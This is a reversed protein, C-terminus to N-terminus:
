KKYFKQHKWFAIAAVVVVALAIYLYIEVAQKEGSAYSHMGSLHFNVGFYTMLISAFAFVSMVNYIWKGRLAPVFRAHIVFAYVMISILAWTEKPDWGWYRGWSENAWQGGLFNGITLMVLGVTLAMENIYTIEQITLDMKQKNKANTFIMLFLAVLGLIMGLTFPGYSAVIVAVHIMLWYSNLVPQLNGIAPDMWNWHAVMLIIATVFATSAVTLESKRGFALGFFMTAWAVYIMSEYADSWPAHGSIYWRILLGGLHMLFLLGIIIHSVKTAIVVWRKKSFIKWIVFIFMLVGAYLYWSFLKKFIDYKNYLIETNIKKDSLMVKAGFKKQYDSIGKLLQDVMKYNKTQTANVCENLYFPLANKVIDLPTNTAHNLELNSVWKNNKDKPLPFVKLIEGSLAQNLLRVKKDAEIFDKQFQNPISEKYAEEIQKEIKYNGQADFFNIMSAYKSEKDIGLLNRISDNGKKLYILPVHVWYQPFQNMSIFVQDSTLGEYSDNKSAKRLLESSFTNIPKMRGGEDQIVLKGFEAAKEEPISYKKIYKLAEESTPMKQVVKTDHTHTANNKQAMGAFSFFLFLMTFVSKKGRVKDLKKKLDAFRTNRDFLIAMLAFYLLFYGIYTIWTGWFDHNVSLHTGQEDPDFGAQFFRFGRYDLVHNMYVSDKVTKNEQTDQIQIKSKFSAYSKETGPYKEAIFDDLKISFPLQHIKSGYLLTFELEGLKFSKPESQKGKQGFLTVLEEKGESTVKLVVADDTNKDKYNEDSELALTGKVPLQPLVFQIGGVNYLSRFQLESLSNAEVVGQKKDAMRMYNGEFPTQITYSDQKATINIAGPTAKNFAFLLNSISKVEGDLLFHEKRSGQSAEVLKLYTKGKSNPKFTQKANLIFEQLEITFPKGDFDDSITLSNKVAKSFLAQKEITKRKMEGKYNGDVFATIYPIDSYVINSSAGERVLLMGEYSIYRTVFAGIIIFIFSLHLLLTAWKEKKYLQYRKINGFFNIVFFVMILEFWWANYVLIRATETNYADEIFTGAAMAAAFVIFLIAMLRTSYLPALIKQLMYNAKKLGICIYM